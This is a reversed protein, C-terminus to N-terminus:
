RLKKTYVLQYGPMLEPHLVAIVDSLLLDPRAIASEWFDNAGTALASNNFNYVQKIRVAKFLGHMQDADILAKYTEFNCNLWVDADKFKDIVSETKLPLSGKTTDNAYAYDAGADKYLQAMFSRGGPVYWTGRFGSGNLVSPRVKVHETLKKVALYRSEVENFISDALAGQDYFAAMFKIWEARALLDSEMWENNQIVNIGAETLRRTNVDEQNYGSMIIIDSKLKMVKEIQINFADGLSVIKGEQFRKRITENYILDPSCIGTIKDLGKTLNLFEIHTSSTIAITKVPMLIKLGGSPVKVASDKVLFYKASIEGSKWPNYVVLERYDPHNIIAFGRAYQMKGKEDVVNTESLRGKTCSSLVFLSILLYFHVKM